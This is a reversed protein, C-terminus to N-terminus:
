DMLQSIAVREITSKQERDRSVQWYKDTFDAPHM